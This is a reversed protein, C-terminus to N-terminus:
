FVAIFRAGRAACTKQASARDDRQNGLWRKGRRQDKRRGSAARGYGRELASM